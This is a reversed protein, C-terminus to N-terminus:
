FIIRLHHLGPKFEQTLINKIENFHIPNNIFDMNEGDLLVVPVLTQTKFFEFYANQIQELYEDKIKSEFPRQREVIHKKVREVPRHLYLILDPTPIKQSLINFINHFLKFEEENLNQKAFLLSKVLSYDAINFDSFLDRNNLSSQLQKQRETLFSLEVTFAYREPNNYFYGLFPNETFQELILNCNFEDALMKSLTTKGAGINGEICVYNYPVKSM